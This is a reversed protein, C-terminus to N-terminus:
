EQGEDSQESQLYAVIDPIISEVWPSVFTLDPDLLAEGLAERETVTLVQLAMDCLGGVIVSFYEAEAPDELDVSTLYTVFGEAFRETGEEPGGDGGGEPAGGEGEECGCV